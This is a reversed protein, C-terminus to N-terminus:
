LLGYQEWVRRLTVGSLLDSLVQSEGAARTNAIALVEEEVDRPVVVTGDDDAMVLDGPAIVVGGITVPEQTAAIAMRGRYDIPRASRAFAGFSLAHIKDSDRLNGDTIMGVAGRGHAAASFLEGWFASANSQGTAIVILDGPATADIFDIADDYPHEPDVDLTPVFRATRARGVVRTGPVVCTLRETLVQARLGVKDLSDSLIATTLSPHIV